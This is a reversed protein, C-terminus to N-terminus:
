PAVRKLQAAFDCRIARVDGPQLGNVDDPKLKTGLWFRWGWREIRLCSYPTGALWAFYWGNEGKAPEHNMGVFRVLSPELKPNLVPVWRLSDVPNRLASWVFIRKQPNWGATKNAWWQQVPDGGRLGDVGDEDNDYLAAISPFHLVIRDFRRSKAPWCCARRAFIYIIPIGIVGFVLLAALRLLWVPISVLIRLALTM